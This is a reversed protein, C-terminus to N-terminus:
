NKKIIKLFILPIQQNKAKEASRFLYLILRASCFVTVLRIKTVYIALIINDSIYFTISILFITLVEM